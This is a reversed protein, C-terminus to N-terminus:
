KKRLEDFEILSEITTINQENPKFCVWLGNIKLMFDGSENEFALDQTTYASIKQENLFIFHSPANTNYKAFGNEEIKLTTTM